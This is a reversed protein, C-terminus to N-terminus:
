QLSHVLSGKSGSNCSISSQSAKFWFTPAPSLPPRAGLGFFPFPLCPSRLGGVLFGWYSSSGGFSGEAVPVLIGEGAPQARFVETPGLYIPSAGPDQQIRAGPHIRHGGSIDSPM